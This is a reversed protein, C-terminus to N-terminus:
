PRQLLPWEPSARMRPMGDPRSSARMGQKTVSWRVPQPRVLSDLAMMPVLGSPESCYVTPSVWWM